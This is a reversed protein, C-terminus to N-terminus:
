LKWEDCWKDTIDELPRKKLQCYLQRAHRFAASHPAYERGLSPIVADLRDAYRKCKWAHKIGINLDALSRLAHSLKTTM